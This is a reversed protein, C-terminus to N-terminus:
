IKTGNKRKKIIKQFDKRHSRQFLMPEDTVIIRKKYYIKFMYQLYGEIDGTLEINLKYKLEDTVFERNIELYYNNQRFYWDERKYWWIINTQFFGKRQIIKIRKIDKILDFFPKTYHYRLQDINLM